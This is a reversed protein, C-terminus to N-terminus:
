FHAALQFPTRVRGTWSLAWMERLGDATRNFETEWIVVRLHVNTFAEIATASYILCAAIEQMREDAAPMDYIRDVARRLFAFLGLRDMDTCDPGASM